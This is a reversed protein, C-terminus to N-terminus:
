RGYWVASRRGSPGTTTASPRFRARRQSTDPFPGDFVGDFSPGGHFAIQYPQATGTPTLDPSWTMERVEGVVLAQGTDPDRGVRVEGWGHGIPVGDATRITIAGRATPM